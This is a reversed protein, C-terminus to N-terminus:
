IRSRAQIIFDAWKEADAPDMPRGLTRAMQGDISIEQYMRYAIRIIEKEQDQGNLGGFTPCIVFSLPNQSFFAKENRCGPATTNEMYIRGSLLNNRIRRLAKEITTHNMRPGFIQRATQTISRQVMPLTHEDARPNLVTPPIIGTLVEILRQVKGNARLKIGLASSRISQRQSVCSSINGSQIVACIDEDTVLSGEGMFSVRINPDAPRNFEERFWHIRNAIYMEQNASHSEIYNYRDPLNLLHHLEHAMVDVGGVWNGSTPWQTPDVNAEFVDNGSTDVFQLDVTYGLVSSEKEVGDELQKAQDVYQQQGNLKIKVKVVLNNLDSQDVYYFKGGQGTLQTWQRSSDGSLGEEFTANQQAIPDQLRQQENQAAQSLVPGWTQSVSAPASEGTSFLTRLYQIYYLCDDRLRAQTIIQEAVSRTQNPTYIADAHLPVNLFLPLQRIDDAISDYETQDTSSCTRQITNRVGNQQVVHTLEHALLKKGRDTAPAYQGENFVINNGSTYALANISQASKAALTGTHIKVKSFNYGIRREMFSRTNGEMHNGGFNLAENVITPAESFFGNGSKEKRQAKEEEECKSCKRQLDISNDKSRIFSDSNSRNIVEDAVREAQREYPDNTSGITLKPQFFPQKQTDNFFVSRPQKGLKNSANSLGSYAIYNRM